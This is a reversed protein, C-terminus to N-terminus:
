CCIILYDYAKCFLEKSILRKFTSITTAQRISSPLRNWSLPVAIMFSCYGMTTKIKLASIALLIGNSNRHLDHHRFVEVDTSISSFRSPM